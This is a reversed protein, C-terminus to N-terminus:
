GPNSADQMHNEMFARTELDWCHLLSPLKFLDSGQQWFICDREGLGGLVLQEKSQHHAALRWRDRQYSVTAVAAARKLGMHMEPPSPTIQLQRSQSQAATPWAAPLKNRSSSGSSRGEPRIGKNTGVHEASTIPWIESLRRSGCCAGTHQAVFYCSM